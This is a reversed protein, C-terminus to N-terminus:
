GPTTSARIPSVRRRARLALPVALLLAAVVVVTAVRFPARAGYGSILAGGIAPGVIAGTAQISTTLGTLLGRNQATSLDLLLASLAPLALVYGVAACCAAFLASGRGHAVAILGLGLAFLALGALAPLARGLRDALWGAPLLLAGALVAPPVLLLVFDAYRMHLVHASYPKLDPALMAVAASLITILAILLATDLTLVSLAAALGPRPATRAHPADAAYVSGATRTTTATCLAAFALLAGALIFAADFSLRDAIQAGGITGVATGAIQAASVIALLRAHITPPFHRGVLAYMAPWVVALTLGFLLWSALYGWASRATMMWAITPICAIIGGILVLRPSLRDALLGSVPQGITKAAFYLSFAGGVVKADAHLRARPYEPNVALLLIGIVAETLFIASVLGIAARDGCVLGNARPQGPQEISASM